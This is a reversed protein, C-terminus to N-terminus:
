HAVAAAGKPPRKLLLPLPVALLTIVALVSYIDIYSLVSAQRQLQHYFMGLARHQADGLSGATGLAQQALAAIRASYAVSGASAHSILYHQHVQQRRALMSAFLSTGCSGGINRALNILGSVDNSQEPKTGVYSLTSLPIFLFGIGLSQLVRLEAAYGFSMQLDLGTSYFLAAAMM